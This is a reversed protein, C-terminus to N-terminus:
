NEPKLRKRLFLITLGSLIAIVLAAVLILSFKITGAGSQNEENLFSSVAALGKEESSKIQNEKESEEVPIVNIVRPTLNDSWVWSNETRNYSQGIPAKEFSVKDIINGNPQIFNLADGDNNL